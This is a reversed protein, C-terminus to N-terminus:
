SVLEDDIREIIRRLAVVRAAVRPTYGALEREAVVSLLVRGALAARAELPDSVDYADEPDDDLFETM